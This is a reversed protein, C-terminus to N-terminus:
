VQSYLKPLDSTALGSFKDTGKACRVSFAEPTFTLQYREPGEIRM